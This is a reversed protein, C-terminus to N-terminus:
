EHSLFGHASSDQFFELWDALGHLAGSDLGGPNVCGEGDICLVLSHWYCPGVGVNALSEAEFM